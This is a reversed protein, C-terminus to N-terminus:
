IETEYLRISRLLWDIFLVNTVNVVCCRVDILRSRHWSHIVLSGLIVKIEIRFFSSESNLIERKGHITM